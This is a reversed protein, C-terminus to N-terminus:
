TQVRKARSVALGRGIRTKGRNISEFPWQISELYDEALGKGDRGCLTHVILDLAKPTQKGMVPSLLKVGKTYASYDRYPLTLQLNVLSTPTPM